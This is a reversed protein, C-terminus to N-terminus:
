RPPAPRRETRRPRTRERETVAFGALALLAALVAGLATRRATAGTPRPTTHM